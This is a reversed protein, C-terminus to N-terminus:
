DTEYDYVHINTAGTAATVNLVLRNWLWTCIIRNIDTAGTAATVYLVQRNWLWTHTCRIDTAGTVNLVITQKMTMYM